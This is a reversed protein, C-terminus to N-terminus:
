EYRLAEAPKMRVARWAPYLIGSIIMLAMLLGTLAIGTLFRVATFDSWNLNVLEAIGLNFSIVVAPLMALALMVLGEGILLARLGHRTSGLAVRLGMEGWRHQTRFWFTGSIGLFINISLFVLLNLRMRIDSGVPSVIAERILSSSRVDMLYLNGVSLQAGMDRRFDESFRAAADPRIRICLEMNELDGSGLEGAIEDESLLSYYCPRSKEYETWRIPICLAKVEKFYGDKGIQLSKGTASEGPLLEEAGNASLIISHVDLADALAPGNGSEREIRFVRFFSPTVKYRQMTVGVTDKYFLRSYYVQSTYGTSAYPQSGISMSVEEVSPYQRIREMITLLDAGTTTEKTEPDIYGDSEPTREKIDVRYTDAIDFGLPTRVITSLVSMYDIVYWLCVSILMLETLIWINRKRQNWIITFLHKIM